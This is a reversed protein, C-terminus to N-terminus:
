VHWNFKKRIGGKGKEIIAYAMMVAEEVTHACPIYNLELSTRLLDYKPTWPLFTVIPKTYKGSIQTIKRGIHMSFQPPYPLLLLIILSVNLQQLLYDLIKVLDEEESAGTLDIPNNLGAIRAATPNLLFEMQQKQEQTFESLGLNYKELIDAAMVGHGGSVTIIAIKDSQVGMTTFKRFPNSLVSYVKLFNKVELETQPVIISHQKFAGTMIEMNGALSGTHSHAAVKGSLSRGGMYVVIDKKSKKAIQVFERGENPEFGEIYLAIVNTKPDKEFFEMIHTEKIMAKNGISIASSVGIDREYCSLFFQDLLVGGSQSIFGVNGEKPKVIRETPLFITDVIPPSYVGVCNPGIIPFKKDVCLQVLRDQLAKGEKGTEAFGGGIIIGGKIGFEAAEKVSDYVNKASICFVALDPVEPLKNIATHTKYGDVDTMTPSIGYTKVKMELYNKSFTTNGPHTYDRRSLGVVVMSKPYFLPTLDYKESEAAM